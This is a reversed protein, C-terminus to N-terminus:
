KNEKFYKCANSSMKQLLELTMRMDEDTFDSAIIHNWSTLVEIIKPKIELARDTVYVKYARKDKTDRERRIYGQEELKSIARATTGKDISLKDALEEQSIGDKKYLNILFIYQGSGINYSKLEKNIYSQSIRYLTSIWKGISNNNINM